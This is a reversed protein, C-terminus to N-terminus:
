NIYQFTENITITTDDAINPLSSFITGNRNIIRNGADYEVNLNSNGQTTSVNTVNNNSYIMAQWHEYQDDYEDNLISFAYLDNLSNRLPNTNNDYTYTFTNADQGTIVSSTLNGNSDYSITETKITMGNEMTERLMLKSTSPDFTFRTSFNTGEKTRTVVNNAHIYSFTFNESADELDEYMITSIKDLTYSVSTRNVLVGDVTTRVERVRSNEDRIINGVGNVTIGFITLTTNQATFQNNLNIVFDATFSTEDGTTSSFSKMYDYDSLQLSGGTPDTPNPDVPDPNPNIPDTPNGSSTEIIIEGEYPENDCSFLCFALITTTIIITKKM